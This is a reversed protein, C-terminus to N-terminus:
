RTERVTQPRTPSWPCRPTKIVTLLSYHVRYLGPSSQCAPFLSNTYARWQCVIEAWHKAHAGESCEPSQVVWSSQSQNLSIFVLSLIKGRYWFSLPSLWVNRLRQCLVLVFNSSISLHLRVIRMSVTSKFFNIAYNSVMIKPILKNNYQVTRQNSHHVLKHVFKGM